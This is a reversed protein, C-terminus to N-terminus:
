QRKIGFVMDGVVEVRFGAHKLKESVIPHTPSGEREPGGDVAIKRTIALSQTAGELVEPEWGEAELKLFDIKEIELEIILTDLTKSSVTIKQADVSPRVFSSDATATAKFFTLSGCQNSVAFELAKVNNLQQVNRSLCAFAAPDPEFAYVMASKEAAGITFEGINAGIEVVQDEPELCVEGHQYKEIMKSTRHDIGNRWLYRAVRTRECFHLTKGGSKAEYIGESVKKVEIDTRRRKDALGYAVRMTPFYISDPMAAILRDRVAYAWWPARNRSRKSSSTPM